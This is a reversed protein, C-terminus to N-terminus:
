NSQPLLREHNAGPECFVAELFNRTQRWAHPWELLVKRGEPTIRYYRRPPGFESPVSEAELLGQRALSRLVPYRAGAKMPLPGGAAQELLGALEYGYAPRGARQVAALVALAAIGANLEKRLKLTSEHEMQRREMRTASIVQCYGLREPITLQITALEFIALLVRELRCVRRAEAVLSFPNSLETM